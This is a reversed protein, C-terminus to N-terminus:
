WYLKSESGNFPGLFFLRAEYRARASTMNSWTSTTAMDGYMNTADDFATSSGTYFDRSVDPTVNFTMPQRTAKVIPKRVMCVMSLSINARLLYLFLLAAGNM